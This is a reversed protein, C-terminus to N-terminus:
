SSILNKADSAPISLIHQKLKTSLFVIVSCCKYCFTISMILNTIINSLDHVNLINKYTKYCLVLQFKDLLLTNGVTIFTNICKSIIKCSRQWQSPYM